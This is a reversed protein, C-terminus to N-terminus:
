EYDDELDEIYRTHINICRECAVGQIGFPALDVYTEGTVPCGCCQCWPRHMIKQAYARDRRAEQEAPDWCDPIDYKM